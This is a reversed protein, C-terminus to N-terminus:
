AAVYTLTTQLSDGQRAAGGRGSISVSGDAEVSLCVDGLLQSVNDRVLPAVLTEPPRMGEPLTGVVEGQWPQASSTWKASVTVMPGFAWAVVEGWQGSVVTISDTRSVSDRLSDITPITEFLRVPTGVTIGDLPVRYLPFDVPSTGDSISGENYAPDQPDSAAPTGQIVELSVGEVDGDVEYRFVVLDNRKMGQSGNQITLDCGGNPVEVDAGQFSAVGDSVHLTNATTMSADLGSMVYNGPGVVGANYNRAESSSVHPINGGRSGTVLYNGPM